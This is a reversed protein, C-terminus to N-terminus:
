IGLRHIKEYLTPRSINLLKAAKSRNGGAVVLAQNIAHREVQDMVRALDLNIDIDNLSVPQDEPLLLEDFKESGVLGKASAFHDVWQQLQSENGPWDYNFLFEIAESTFNEELRQGKAALRERLRSEIEVIRGSLPLLEIRQVGLLSLIDVMVTHTSVMRKFPKRCLTVVKLNKNNLLISQFETLADLCQIQLPFPLNELNELVLM